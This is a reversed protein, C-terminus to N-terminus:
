RGVRDEWSARVYFLVMYLVSESNSRAALPRDM